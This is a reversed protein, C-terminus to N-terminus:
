GKTSTVKQLQHSIAKTGQYVQQYIKYIQKYQEVARQNPEFRQAYTIFDANCSAMDPYWGLGVAAIMAAGLGPGEEATLTVVPTAFIDAQMQLWTPNKAGGGVSVIEEFVKGAQNIMLEQSEKLSFTIGEVVAKALHKQTHQSGLGIFSGRIQSDTYPTREGAIYPTFLLGEAGPQILDIESLLDDYSLESAFIDKFWSLSHGAALTVGMSYLRDQIGHNFVHIKGQYDIQSTPEYALFVGSTGISSMAIGDRTIGAAVAGCANDAGGAFIAVENKFGFFAQHQATLCGVKGSSESLTPLVDLPLDFCESIESSWVKNEMDLLLTGAADSYDMYKQGTLWFSLYDKPLMLSSVQDWIAPEEEQVWLIKPLTFGELAVNKTIKLIEEGFEAMIRQCQKTTRVDNWLIAPRLVQNAEDLLVLSHMQGSFSIGALEQLISPELRILEKIVEEAADLWEQPNQESFGPQPTLLPYSRSATQVVEGQRNVLVGKLASTGLDLGIIYSM